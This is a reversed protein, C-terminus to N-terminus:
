HGLVIVVSFEGAFFHPGADVEDGGELGFLVAIEDAAVQGVDLALLLQQAVLSDLNVVRVSVNTRSKSNNRTNSLILISAHPLKFFPSFLPFYEHVASPLFVASRLNYLSAQELM